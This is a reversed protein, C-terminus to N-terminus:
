RHLSSSANFQAGAGLARTAAMLLDGVRFPKALMAASEFCPPLAGLDGSIFLVPIASDRARQRRVFEDGTIDPMTVDVVLLDFRERACAELAESGSAVATVNYGASELAWVVVRRVGDEDDVVLVRRDHGALVSRKIKSDIEARM